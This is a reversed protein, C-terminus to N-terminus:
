EIASMKCNKFVPMRQANTEQEARQLQLALLKKLHDIMLKGCAEHGYSTSTHKAATDIAKDLEDNSMMLEM